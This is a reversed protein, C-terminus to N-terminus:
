NCIRYTYWIMGRQRRTADVVPVEVDVKTTYTEESRLAHSPLLYFFRHTKMCLENSRWNNNAPRRQSCRNGTAASSEYVQRGNPIKRLSCRVHMVSPRRMIVLRTRGGESWLYTIMPGASKWKHMCKLRNMRAKATKWLDKLLQHADSWIVHIMIKNGRQRHVYKKWVHQLVSRKIIRNMKWTTLISLRIWANRVVLCLPVWWYVPSRPDKSASRLLTQVNKTNWRFIHQKCRHAREM